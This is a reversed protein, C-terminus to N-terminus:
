DTLSLNTLDPRGHVVLDKHGLKFTLVYLRFHVHLFQGKEAKVGEWKESRNHLEQCIMCCKATSFRFAVIHRDKKYRPLSCQNYKAEATM